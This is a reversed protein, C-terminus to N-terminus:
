LKGVLGLWTLKVCFEHTRIMKTPRPRLRRCDSDRGARSAMPPTQYHVRQTLGPEIRLTKASPGTRREDGSRSITNGGEVPRRLRGRASLAASRHVGFRDIR